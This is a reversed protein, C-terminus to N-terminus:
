KKKTGKGRKGGSAKKEEVPAEEVPEAVQEETVQESEPELAEFLEQMTQPEEKTEATEVSSVEETVSTEIEVDVDEEGEDLVVDQDFGDTDEVLPEEIIVHDPYVRNEIVVGDCIKIEDDTIFVGAVNGISNLGRLQEETIKVRQCRNSVVEYLRGKNTELVRVVMYTSNVAAGPVEHLLPRYKGVGSKVLIDKMNFAEDPVFGEENYKVGKVLGKDILERAFRPTTEDFQRTKTDYLTIGALRTYGLSLVCVPFKM